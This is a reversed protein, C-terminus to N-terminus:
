RSSLVQIAQNLTQTADRQDMGTQATLQQAMEQKEASSFHLGQGPISGSSLNALAQGQNEQGGSMLKNIVMPVIIAMATMAVDRPIGTKQSVADALPSLISNLGGMGGSAGTQGGGFMGGLISGLPDNSQGGVNSAGGGGLISGLLDSMPDGSSGQSSTRSPMGGQTDGMGGLIGGLVSGLDGGAPMNGQGGQGGMMGGLLDSLPDGTGTPMNNPASGGQGMMPADSLRGLVEDGGQAPTPPIIPQNQNQKQLQKRLKGKKGM